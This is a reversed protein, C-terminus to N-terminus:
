LQDRHGQWYGLNAQWLSLWGSRQIGGADCAVLFLGNGGGVDIQGFPNPHLKHGTATTVARAPRNPLEARGQADTTVTFAPTPTFTRAGVMQYFQLKVSSLPQAGEDFASV